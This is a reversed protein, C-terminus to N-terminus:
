LFKPYICFSDVSRCRVTTQLTGGESAGNNNKNNDNYLHDKVASHYDDNLLEMIETWLPKPSRTGM